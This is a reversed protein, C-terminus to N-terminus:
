ILYMYYIFVPRIVHGNHIAFRVNLVHSFLCHLSPLFCPFEPCIPSMCLISHVLVSLFVICRRGDLGLTCYVYKLSVIRDSFSVFQKVLVSKLLEQDAIVVAPMAGIYFSRFIYRWNILIPNINHITTRFECQMIEASRSVYHHLYHYFYHYLHVCITTSIM